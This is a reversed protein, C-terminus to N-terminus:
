SEQNIVQQTSQGDYHTAIYDIVEAKTTLEKLSEDTASSCVKKALKKLADLTNM